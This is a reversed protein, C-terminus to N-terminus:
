MFSFTMWILCRITCIRVYVPFISDRGMSNKVGKSGGPVILLILVVVLMCKVQM